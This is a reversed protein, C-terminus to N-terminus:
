ARAVPAEKSQMAAVRAILASVTRKDEPSMDVFATGLEYTPTRDVMQVRMVKCTATFAVPQGETALSPDTIRVVLRTQKPMFVKSRVALGGNSIDVVSCVFGGQGDTAGVALVVIGAHEGTVQSQAALACRVREHQRVVLNDTKPASM